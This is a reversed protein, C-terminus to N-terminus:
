GDLRYVRRANESWLKRRATPSLNTTLSDLTEVWRAYSSALTAVPWDSGFLVRDEGFSALVHAAYPALDDVTWAAHDAETM